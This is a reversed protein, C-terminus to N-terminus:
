KVGTMSKFADTNVVVGDTAEYVFMDVQLRGAVKRTEALMKEGDKIWYEKLDGIWMETTDATTGLNEPIDTVEVVDYKGLLKEGLKFIPVGQDDNITLLAKMGLTSTMVVAGNRYQPALSFILNIVDSYALASGAQAITDVSAERFGTPQGSGDGGVFATEEYSVLARSCLNSIYNQINVGSTSLLKYPIKVRAVLYHDDLSTKGLTPASETVDTDAETTIWYAVCATGETPLDFKGAMSFVFARPRIQAIKDKLEHVAKALETPVSYGFSGDDTTITKMEAVDNNVLKTVFEKTVEAKEVVSSEMGKSKLAEMETKMVGLDKALESENISENLITKLQSENVEEVKEITKTGTLLDKLEQETATESFKIELAKLKKKLEDM